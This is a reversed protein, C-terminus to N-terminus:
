FLKRSLYFLIGNVVSISLIGLFFDIPEKFFSLGCIFLAAFFFLMAGYYVVEKLYFTIGNHNKYLSVDNTVRVNDICGYFDESQKM